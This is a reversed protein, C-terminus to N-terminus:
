FVRVLNFGFFITGDRWDGTAQGLFGNTLMPQANTLHLQFVHGGTELDFGISLPNVYPSGPARNLHAGYDANISWRNSLKYRAGIGLAYQTNEQEDIPVFNEHLITPSIQASFKKSFKRAVILQATYGLRDQFEILPYIEKDLGTQVDTALFTSITVPFGDRLQPQLRLKTAVQYTKFLSSRSAEIHMWDTLGYLFQLRTAAQDLGFLEDIGSNIAGFRHSVIFQFEGKAVLKSTELNVVKLSKWTSTVEKDPELQFEDLLDDQAVGIHIACCLLIFLSFRM